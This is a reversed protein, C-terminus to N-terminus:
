AVQRAIALARPLEVPGESQLVKRLSRGAIFDMTMFPMGQHDGLDHIRVVHRHTVRRAVILEQRFRHLFSEDGAIETRLVKLAVELNLLDDHAAYVAGMGGIGLLGSIRYRGAIVTGDPLRDALARSLGEGSLGQGDLGQGFTALASLRGATAATPATAASPPSSASAAELASASERTGPDGSQSPSV